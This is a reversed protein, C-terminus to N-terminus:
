TKHPEKKEEYKRIFSIIEKNFKDFDGLNNILIQHIEEPTIEKYFHVMRNRYGAMKILVDSLEQSIVERKGLERAIEKYEIEKFGYTKALIHRGIDFLAELSRRLYSEVFPPNKKDSLFEKIGIKSYPKIEELCSEIYRTLELIRATNLNSIVM